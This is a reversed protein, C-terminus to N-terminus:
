LAAFTLSYLPKQVHAMSRSAYILDPLSVFTKFGYPSDPLSIYLRYNCFDLACACRFGSPM